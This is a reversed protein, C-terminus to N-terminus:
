VCESLLKLYTYPNFPHNPSGLDPHVPASGDKCCSCPGARDVGNQTGTGLNLLCLDERANQLELSLSTGKCLTQGLASGYLYLQTCSDLAGGLLCLSHQARQLMTGGLTASRVGPTITVFCGVQLVRQCLVSCLGLKYIEM